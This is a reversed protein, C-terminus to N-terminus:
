SLPALLFRRAAAAAPESNGRPYAAEVHAATVNGDAEVLAALAVQDVPRGDLGPAKAAANDHGEAVRSAALAAWGGRLERPAALDVTILTM